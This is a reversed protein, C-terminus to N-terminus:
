SVTSRSQSGAHVFLICWTNYMVHLNVRACVFVCVRARARVCVCVCVCVKNGATYTLPQLRLGRWIQAVGRV